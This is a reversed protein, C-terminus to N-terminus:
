NRKPLNGVRVQARQEQLKKDLYKKIILEDPDVAKELEKALAIWSDSTGHFDIITQKPCDLVLCSSQQGWSSIIKLKMLNPKKGLTLKTLPFKLYSQNIEIRVLREYESLDLEGGELTKNVDWWIGIGPLQRFENKKKRKNIEEARLWKAFAQPDKERLNEILIDHNNIVKVKEKDAKTPYKDDLYEQLTNIKKTKLKPLTSKASLHDIEFKWTFITNRLVDIDKDYENREKCDYTLDIGEEITAKWIEPNDEYYKLYHEWHEKVMGSSNAQDVELWNKFDKLLYKSM